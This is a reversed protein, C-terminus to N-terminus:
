SLYRKLHYIPKTITITLNSLFTYKLVMRNTKSFYKDLRNILHRNENCLTFFDVRHKYSTRFLRILVRNVFWNMGSRISEALKMDIKVCEDILDEVYNGANIISQFILRGNFAVELENTVSNPNQRYYYFSDNSSMARKAYLLCRAVFTTEEGYSINEPFLENFNSLLQKRFVGRFPYGLNYIIGNAFTTKLIEVGTYIRDTLDIFADEKEVVNNHETFKTINFVFADLNQQDCKNLIFNIANPSIFDDSDVFWVYKGRTHKFGTNRAGGVKKNVSHKVVRICDYTKSLKEVILGSEDPSCDDVCVIEVNNSPEIQSVISMLCQEVYSEVNYYPVIISLIIDKNM